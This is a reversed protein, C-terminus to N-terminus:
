KTSEDVSDHKPQPGCSKPRQRKSPVPYPANKPIMWARGVKEAGSIRGNRCFVKIIEKSKNHMEAYEETTVLDISDVPTVLCKEFVDSSYIILELMDTVIAITEGPYFAMDAASERWNGDRGEFHEVDKFNLIFNALLPLSGNSYSGDNYLLKINGDPAKVLRAKM